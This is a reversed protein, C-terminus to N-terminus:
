TRAPTGPPPANAEAQWPAPRISLRWWAAREMVPRCSLRCSSIPADRHAASRPQGAAAPLAPLPDQRVLQPSV